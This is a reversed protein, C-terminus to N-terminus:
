GRFNVPLKGSHQGIWLWFLVSRQGLKWLFRRFGPRVVALFAVGGAVAEPHRGIWRAGDRVRDAAHFMPQLGEAYEALSARQSAAELQLRQKELAIEVANMM